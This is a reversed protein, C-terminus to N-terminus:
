ACQTYNNVRQEDKEASRNGTREDRGSDSTSEYPRRVDALHRMVHHLSELGAQLKSGLLSRLDLRDDFSRSGVELLDVACCRTPHLFSDCFGISLNRGNECGFLLLLKSLHFFFM